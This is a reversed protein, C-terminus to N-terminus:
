SREERSVTGLSLGIAGEDEKLPQNGCHFPSQCSIFDLLSSVALFEREEM